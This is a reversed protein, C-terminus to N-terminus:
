VAPHFAPWEMEHSCMTGFFGSSNWYRELKQQQSVKTLNEKERYAHIWGQQFIHPPTSIQLTKYSRSTSSTFCIILWTHNTYGVYGEPSMQLFPQVFCSPCFIATTKLSCNFAWAKYQGSYILSLNTLHKEFRAYSLHHQSDSKSSIAPRSDNYNYDIKATFLASSFLKETETNPPSPSPLSLQPCLLLLSDPWGPTLLFYQSIESFEFTRATM